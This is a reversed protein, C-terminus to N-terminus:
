MIVCDISWVFVWQFVYMLTNVKWSPLQDTSEWQLVEPIKCWLSSYWLVRPSHWVTLESCWWLMDPIKCWFSSYWLLWPSHWVALESCWQLMDPIECWFSSYWLLWPSHWIKSEFSGQLLNSYSLQLTWLRCLQMFQTSSHLFCNKSQAASSTFACFLLALVVWVRM